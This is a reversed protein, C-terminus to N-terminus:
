ANLQKLILGSRSTDEAIASKKATLKLFHDCVGNPVVIDVMQVSEGGMITAREMAQSRVIADPTASYWIIKGAPMQRGEGGAMPQALLIRFKGSQFAALEEEKYRYRGHFKAGVIKFNEMLAAAAAELEHVFQFWVVVRDDYQQIEDFLILMKPNSECVSKANGDKELWFGGEIQQLKILAAGGDLARTQGLSELREIENAKVERWMSAQKTTMEAYRVDQQVPPLDECDSRLVVSAYKAKHEKLIELNTYKILKPYRQGGKTRAIEYVAHRQKFEGYTRCGLAERELLEFQSFSQLPSNESETGSLIRRYEFHRALGRAAGTRKSGPRAFHHSEDFVIMCRGVTKKFSMIVKKIDDRAVSEMNVALWQMAGTHWFLRWLEFNRANKPDSFRWAFRNSKVGKWQHKPVEKEIWQRHVGNPAVIVVGGIEMSLYLHCAVDIIAKTKGTRQQWLLARAEDARHRDFEEAQHKYPTFIM